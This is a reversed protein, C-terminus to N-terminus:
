KKARTGLAPAAALRNVEALGRATTREYFRGKKPVALFWRYTGDCSTARFTVDRGM